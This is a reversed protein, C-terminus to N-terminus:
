LHSRPTSLCQSPSAPHTAHLAALATRPVGAQPQRFVRSQAYCEENGTRTPLDRFQGVYPVLSSVLMSYLACSLSWGTGLSAIFRTRHRISAMQGSWELMEVDFGLWVGLYLYNAVVRVLKWGPVIASIQRRTASIVRNEEEDGAVAPPAVLPLIACKKINLNLASARSLTAFAARLEPLCALLNRLYIAMDDAFASLLCRGQFRHALLRLFGELVLVFLTGSLPCGQRIGSAATYRTTSEGFALVSVRAPVYLQTVFFLPGGVGFIHKITHLLFAWSVSPFAAELDAFFVGSSPANAATRSSMIADLEVVAETSGRGRLFGHQHPGCLAEAAPAIARNALAAQLKSSTNLLAIPRTESPAIIGSLRTKKPPFVSMYDIESQPQPCNGAWTASFLRFVVDLPRADGSRWAAFDIGDEGPASSRAAVAVEALMARIPMAIAEEFKPVFALIEDMATTDTPKDAFVKGWHDALCQASDAPSVMRSTDTSCSLMSVLRKDKRWAQLSLSLQGPSRASSSAEELKENEQAELFAESEAMSRIHEALLDQARPHLFLTAPNLGISSLWVISVPAAALNRTAESIRGARALRYSKKALYLNETPTTALTTLLTAKVRCAAAHM